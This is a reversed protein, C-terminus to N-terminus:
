VRRRIEKGTCIFERRIVVKFFKEPVSILVCRRGLKPEFLGKAEVQKVCKSCM